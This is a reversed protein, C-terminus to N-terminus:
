TNSAPDTQLLHLFPKVKFPVRQTTMYQLLKLAPLHWTQLGPKEKALPRQM